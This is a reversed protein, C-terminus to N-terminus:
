VSALAESESEYMNAYLPLRVLTFVKHYHASMGYLGIKRGAKEAEMVISILVAIGSTNIYETDGFNLFVREQDGALAEGYAGRIAQEGQETVDGSVDIIAAKDTRRLRAATPKSLM